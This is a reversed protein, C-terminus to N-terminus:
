QRGVFFVDWAWRGVRHGHADYVKARYRFKNGYQDTRRSEKYDIAIAAVGLEPMTHLEGPESIGNHNTDQWIRLKSFFADRSDIVGDGNGHLTPTDFLALALFGNPTASRPQLTFNGFLESGDDIRGNGNRDLVLLGDESNPATWAIHDLSGSHDIDFSVGSAANTLDFGNGAIDILIPSPGDNGCCCGTGDPYTGAPCNGAFDASTGCYSEGQWYPICNGGGFAFWPPAQICAEPRYFDVYTEVENECTRQNWHRSMTQLNSMVVAYVDGDLGTAFADEYGSATNIVPSASCTNGILPFILLDTLGEFDVCLATSVCFAVGDISIDFCPISAIVLGAHARRISLSSFSVSLVLIFIAHRLLKTTLFAKLVRM